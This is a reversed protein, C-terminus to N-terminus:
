AIPHHVPRVVLPLLIWLASILHPSVAAWTIVGGALGAVILYTWLRQHLVRINALQHKREGLRRVYEIEPIEHTSTALVEAGVFDSTNM